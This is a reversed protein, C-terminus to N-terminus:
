EDHEPEHLAERVPLLATCDVLRIHENFDHVLHLEKSYLKTTRM